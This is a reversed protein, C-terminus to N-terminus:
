SWSTGDKRDHVPLAGLVVAPSGTGATAAPGASSSGVHTIGTTAHWPGADPNAGMGTTLSAGSVSAATTSATTSSADIFVASIVANPGSLGTAKIVVSGSVAWQLYVGGAFSSITETDLVSGTAANIVQVRESRGQNNWDVAYIAVDHVQGDGLGVDISATQGYWTTAAAGGGGPLSLAQPATTSAAWTYVSTGAAPAVTAYSPLSAGEVAVSYGQSGYKGIWAGQTTTDSKVFTAATPTPTPAPTPTPTPSATVSTSATATLSSSSTDTATVSQTGTTQFTVSFAHRGADTSTFTYSAPLTAGADTSTFKITGLYGSAVNGYPDDAVVTFGQVTGAQASSALGTIVLKSAAAAKVAIGTEHGVVSSTAADTATISQTGATKLTAAFTHVGADGATFTYSAPLIAQGDSSTFHVTGAYGTVVNGYADDATVTFDGLSGATDSTPFGAIKLSAVAGPVVQIGGQSGTVASNSTDTVVISRTGATEFTVTFSHKGADASTFTYNAPLVAKGDTSTFHVTGVYGTDTAGGPGVVTVTLTQPAGATVSSPVGALTFTPSVQQVSTTYADTAEGNVGNGNQNMANGYWDKVSPGVTLTYTGPTTQGPFSVKFEHDNSGSVASVTVSTIAGNPGSLTVESATFTAPNVEENFTVDFSNLGAATNVSGIASSAVVHPGVANAVAAGANVVGGTTVKGTINSDPTTHDLVADIVQTMSWSPHAAEVLAITGTVLPAAMSTGSDTGYGGSSTTSYVNVGPAALQVSNVGYNSWSALKGSSDIAAVSILNPYQVSYSAPAFFTSSNDDNTGNNGAAAVIIVNHQDAYQIASAITSDTGSGGWSANIVKAGHDVAFEIAQAAATDTGSGSSDLFEVPMLQTTWDVGTGQLANNGVAGIETATFTGHGNGDLPNNTGTIGNSGTAAYNWGIYDGPTSTFGDQTSGSGWGGVSTSAMVDAPGIVGDGDSDTIKGTGQNVKVGNVVANLDAFSIVGDGDVDTLNPKVSTPIEAQNLWVNNVVDPLKYNLGSDVDAVVVGDSGTTVNWAAPANIGWTGNLQWESGNTYQPDNPATLEQMTKVPAASQVAPSAGLLGAVQGVEAAPVQVTYLGAITTPLVSGGDSAIQSMLQPLGGAGPQVQLNLTESAGMSPPPGVVSSISLLTRSELVDLGMWMKAGRRRRRAKSGSVRGGVWGILMRHMNLGRAPRRGDHSM